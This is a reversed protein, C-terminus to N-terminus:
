VVFNEVTFVTPLKPHNAPEALHYRAKLGPLLAEFFRLKKSSKCGSM